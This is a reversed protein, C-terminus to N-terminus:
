RNVLAKQVSPFSAKPSLWIDMFRKAFVMDEIKGVPKGNFYFNLMKGPVFVAALREGETIDPFLRNLTEFYHQKKEESLAEQDDMEEISREAIEEGTFDMQYLLELAFPQDYSWQDCDCWLAVDYTTFFLFSLSTNSYPTNSEFYKDRPFISTEV